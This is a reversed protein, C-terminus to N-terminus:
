HDPPRLQDATSCCWCAVLPSAVLLTVGLIGFVVLGLRVAALGVLVALLVGMTVVVWDPPRRRRPAPPPMGPRDPTPRDPTPQAAATPGARLLAALLPDDHELAAGLARLDPDDDM